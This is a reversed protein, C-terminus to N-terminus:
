KENLQINQKYDRIENDKIEFKKNIESDLKTKIELISQKMKMVRAELATKEENLITIQSLYDENNLSFYFL